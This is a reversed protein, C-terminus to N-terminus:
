FCRHPREGGMSPDLLGRLPQASRAGFHRCDVGGSEVPLCQAQRHPNHCRGFWPNDGLAGFAAEDMLTKGVVSYGAAKLTAVCAADRQPIRGRWAQLGAACPM